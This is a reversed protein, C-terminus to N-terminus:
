AAAENAANTLRNIAANLALGDEDKLAAEALGGLTDSPVSTQKVYALLGLIRNFNHLGREHTDGYGKILRQLKTIEVALAYDSGAEQKILDIWERLRAMETHFGFSSRRMFRLSAVVYLPIFGRLKTTPMRRGGGLFFSMTKRLAGNGLVFKALGTPLLDCIEEVRPHMFEYVNVIQGPAARVDYRLREFRTDRTKLDAVRVTDEFTMWLALHKAVAQTLAHDRRDGGSAIDVALVEALVDLYEAGHRPDQYDVTRKLGERIFFHTSSPYQSQMIKLLSVVKPQAATETSRPPADELGTLSQGQGIDFGLSFGRLNTEVARGMQRITDEFQARDIPLAGSGALAGFLVASIVAGAEAAAKAMDAGVFVGAADQGAKLVEEGCQRGDGIVIKESIAYDRHTSAILTTQKTVFGRM